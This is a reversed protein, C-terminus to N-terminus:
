KKVPFKMRKKVKLVEWQRPNNQQLLSQFVFKRMELLISRVDELREEFPAADEFKNTEGPILTRFRLDVHDAYPILHDWIMVWALDLANLMAQAKVLGNQRDFPPLSRFQKGKLHPPSVFLWNQSNEFTVWLDDAVFIGEAIKRLVAAPIPMTAFSQVVHDIIDLKKRSNDLAKPPYSIERSGGASKRYFPNTLCLITAARSITALEGGCKFTQHKVFGNSAGM